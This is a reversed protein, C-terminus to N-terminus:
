TLPYPRLCANQLSLSGAYAAQMDTIFAAFTCSSSDCLLVSRYLNTTGMMTTSAGINSHEMASSPFNRSRLTSQVERLKVAYIGSLSLQVTLTTCLLERSKIALCILRM